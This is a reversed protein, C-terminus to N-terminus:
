NKNEIIVCHFLFVCPLVISVPATPSSCVRASENVFMCDVASLEIM